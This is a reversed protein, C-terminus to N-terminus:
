LLLFAVSGVSSWSKSICVFKPQQSPETPVPVQRIVHFGCPLFLSGVGSFHGRVEVYTCM